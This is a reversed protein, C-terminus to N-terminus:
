RWGSPDVFRRIWGITNGKEIFRAGPFDPHQAVIHPALVKALEFYPELGDNPRHQDGATPKAGVVLVKGFRYQEIGVGLSGAFESLDLELNRTLEASLSGGLLTIWNIGKIRERM